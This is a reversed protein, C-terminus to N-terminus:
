FSGYYVPISEGLATEITAAIEKCANEYVKDLGRLEYWFDIRGNNNDMRFKLFAEVFYAPGNLHPQFQIGFKEFAKLRTATNGDNEDCFEFSQTGDQERVSRKFKLSKNIELNRAFDLVAASTPYDIQPNSPDESVIDIAHEEFFSAMDSQSLVTKNRHVWANAAPTKAPLFVARWREWGAKTGVHGDLIAKINIRGTGFEATIIIQTGEQRHRNVYNIFSTSDHLEYTGSPHTPEKQLAAEAQEVTWGHDGDNIAIMTQGNIEFAFPQAAAALASEVINKQNEM